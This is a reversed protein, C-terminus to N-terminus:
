ATRRALWPSRGSSLREAAAAAELRGLNVHYGGGGGVWWRRLEYWEIIGNGDIDLEEMWRHGAAERDPEPIDALVHMESLLGALAYTDLGDTANAARPRVAIDRRTATGYDANTHKAYLRRLVDESIASSITRREVKAPANSQRQKVKDPARLQEVYLALAAIRAGVTSYGDADPQKRTPLVNEQSTPVELSPGFQAERNRRVRDLELEQKAIKTSLPTRPPKRWAVPPAVAATGAAAM